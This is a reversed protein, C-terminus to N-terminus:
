YRRKDNKWYEPIGTKLNLIVASKELYYNKCLSKLNEFKKINKPIVSFIPKLEDIFKENKGKKFKGTYYILLYKDSISSDEKIENLLILIKFKNLEILLNEKLGFEIDNIKIKEPAKKIDMDNLLFNLNTPIEFDGTYIKKCFRSLWFLNEVSENGFLVIKEIKIKEKQTIKFLIEKWKEYGEIKGKLILVGNNKNNVLILPNKSSFFIIEKKDTKYFFHFLVFTLISISFLYITIKGRLNGIFLSLIFYYIFVYSLPFYLCIQPSFHSIFVLCNLFFNNILNLPLFLFPIIISIFSLITILGVFPTFILNNIIGLPYFYGFNYFMLPLIFLQASISVILLNIFFNNKKFINLNKSLMIIGGTSLFSLLFSISYIYYPNLFLLLICSFTISTLADIEREIIESILYFSVMLVARTIPIRFGCLFNYFWLISLILFPFLKPKTNNLKQFPIFLVKLFFILFVIHIGSIVFLHYIGSKIGLERLFDPPDDSGITLLKILESSEPNFNTYKEIRKEIGDRLYSFFLKLNIDKKSKKIENSIVQFFIGQREMFKKYDFEFPNKPPNIEMVKAVKIKVKEGPLFKEREKTKIIIKRNLEYYNNEIFIKKTKILMEKEFPKEKTSIIEGEISSLQSFDIKKNIINNKQYLYTSFRGLLFFFLFLFIYKKQFKKIFPLPILTYLFPINFEYSLIGSIFSFLIIFDSKM